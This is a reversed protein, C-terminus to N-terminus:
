ILSKNTYKRMAERLRIFQTKMEPLRATVNILDGAKAAKEMEFAVARLAEGGLNAAAGKIRHAQQEALRCDGADVSAGLKEIQTPMDALFSEIIERALDEDDMVRDLFAARDFIMAEAGGREAEGVDTAAREETENAIRVTLQSNGTELKTLWRDLAAALDRPNVPKPLYDNMGSALCRERDGKMAHATMAIITVQHNCVASRINRIRRTAEFGDMEPMQCDMLVLDYPITELAKVAEAGNNVADARYGLKELIKLAVLQNTANDEALLIRTRRKRAETVTYRTVIGPAPGDTAQPADDRGLVLALCARLHSQRLPKHLYGAFGLTTLREADGRQALSTMMILLTNRIEPDDKIRSGLEAGDMGPMLMDLLAVRYPDGTRVAERLRELAAAGDVAEAFRCGWSKLLSMVLLRNTDHDDVVLVHVGTLDSLPKPSPLRAVPQKEFVTTFWFITGKGEESEIGIRGGMLVVLQKAISLGLGTGGYKRTTSGDVQTFPTFLKEQKDFPIGIGTDTVAFRVMTREEDETELSARLTVGGKHTFKVANGGLNVFVQRLRGPDGRLLVPVDPDIICVLELGKEQAKVALMEATDELTVRLDFDITELELKRAEIKSFDLIDNILTLLAEGSKQVIRAYQNQEDTLETELLLGTMGIVGNMPTRIEHSMNALFESKAMNAMEAQLAMENALATAAELDRNTERLEEEARKRETVQWVSDMLLTLQVVDMEGYEEAKNAVGVVAVIRGGNMVPVTLFRRLHAHGEPYGKKLPHTDQYDNVLIPRRQRVAEGWIGTNELPYITQAETITCEKMVEKSWTNLVFEQREDNYFYIYGIKSGTIKIAETLTYDLFGQITEQGQQFISVLSKLRAYNRSIEEEVQKLGADLLELEQIKQKLLTNEERLEQITGAPDGM